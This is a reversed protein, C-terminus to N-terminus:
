LDSVKRRANAGAEAKGSTQVLRMEEFGGLRGLGNQRLASVVRRAEVEGRTVIGFLPPDYHMSRQKLNKRRCVALGRLLSQTLTRRM